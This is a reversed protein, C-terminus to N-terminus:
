SKPTSRGAGQADTQRTAIGTIEACCNHATLTADSWAKACESSAEAIASAIGSQAAMPDAKDGGAGLGVLISTIRQYAILTQEVQCCTAAAVAKQANLIAPRMDAM